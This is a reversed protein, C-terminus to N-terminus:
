SPLNVDSRVWGFRASGSCAKLNMSGEAGGWEGDLRYCRACAGIVFTFMGGWQGQGSGDAGTECRHVVSIVTESQKLEEKRQSEIEPNYFTPRRALRSLLREQCNQPSFLSADVADVRLGRHHLWQVNSAPAVLRLRLTVELLTSSSAVYRRAFRGGQSKKIHSTSFTSGSDM